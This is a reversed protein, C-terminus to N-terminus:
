IHVHIHSINHTIYRLYGIVVHCYFLLLLYNPTQINFLHNVFSKRLSPLSLIPEVPRLFKYIARPRPPEPKSAFPPITPPLISIAFISVYLLHFMKM